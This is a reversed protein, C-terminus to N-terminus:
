AGKVTTGSPVGERWWAECLMATFSTGSNASSVHITNYREHKKKEHWM